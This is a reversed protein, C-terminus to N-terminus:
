MTGVRVIDPVNLGHHFMYAKRADIVYEPILWDNHDFVVPRDAIWVRPEAEIPLFAEIQLKIRDVRLPADHENETPYWVALTAQPVEERKIPKGNYTTTKLRTGVSDIGLAFGNRATSLPEIYRRLDSEVYLLRYDQAFTVIM